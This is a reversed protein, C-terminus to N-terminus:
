FNALQNTPGSNGRNPAVPVHNAKNARRPDGGERKHKRNHPGGLRKVGQKRPKHINHGRSEGQPGTTKHIGHGNVPM